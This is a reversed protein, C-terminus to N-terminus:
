RTVVLNVHSFQYNLRRLSCWSANSAFRSCQRTNVDSSAHQSYAGARQWNWTMGNALNFSLTISGTRIFAVCLALEGSFDLLILSFGLSSAAWRISEVPGFKKNGSILRKETSGLGNMTCLEGWVTTDSLISVSNITFLCFRIQAMRIPKGSWIVVSPPRQSWKQRNKIM